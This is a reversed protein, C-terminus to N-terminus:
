HAADTIAEARTAWRLGLGIYVLALLLAVVAPWRAYSVWERRTQTKTWQQGTRQTITQLAAHLGANDHIGFYSGGSLQALRKLPAPDLPQFLLGATKAVYGGGTGVGIAFLPVKNQKALALVQLLPMRSPRDLGDSILIVGNLHPQRLALALGEGVAEDTRGLLAPQIRGITQKALVLDFTLPLLTAAQDGYLVIGLRAKDLGDILGALAGKIADLRTQPADPTGYDHLQMTVSDEMVVMLQHQSHVVKKQTIVQERGPEALAVALALLIAVRLVKAWHPPDGVKKVASKKAGAFLTWWPHRFRQILSNKAAQLDNEGGYRRWLWAMLLPLLLLAFVEPHAFTINM